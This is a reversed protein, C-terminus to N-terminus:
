IQMLSKPLACCLLQFITSFLAYMPGDYGRSTTHSTSVSPVLSAHLKKVKAVSVQWAEDLCGFVGAHVRSVERKKLERTADFCEDLNSSLAASEPQSHAAVSVDQHGTGQASTVM